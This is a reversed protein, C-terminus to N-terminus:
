CDWVPLRKELFSEVGKRYDELNILEQLYIKKAIDLKNKLDSYNIKKYAKLTTKIVSLSKSTISNIFEQTKSDFEEENFVYNILGLDYFEGANYKNGTLIIELAKKDGTIPPLHALSVPPFCGLHIEPQSFYTNKSAIVFDCFLALECGGGYCGSKVISLIPTELDLITEFVKHFANLMELVKDKQHDAISLGASFIKQDSNIVILKLKEQQNLDKLIKELYILDQIDLINLPPKSLTIKAIFNEQTLKINKTIM